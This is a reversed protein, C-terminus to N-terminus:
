KNWKLQLINAHRTAEQTISKPHKYYYINSQDKAYARLNDIALVKASATNHTQIFVTKARLYQGDLTGSNINAHLSNTTGALNINGNGQANINLTDSKLWSLNIKSGGKQTVDKVNLHGNLNISSNGTATVSLPKISKFGDSNISAHEAANISQLESVNLTISHPQGSASLHLAHDRVSFSVNNRLFYSANNTKNNQVLKVSLSGTVYLKSYGTPQAAFASFSALLTLSLAVIVLTAKKM